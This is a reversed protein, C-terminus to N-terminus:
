DKRGVRGSSLSATELLVECFRHSAVSKLGNKEILARNHKALAVADLDLAHSFFDNNVDHVVIGNSRDTIWERNAPLDTVVPICGHYMAELLSIATADSTPLSAFVRARAYWQENDDRSLFGVFDVYNQLDLENTLQNLQATQSGRGAIVLRWQEDKQANIFQKFMQIIADIRYLPEHNRNSYIINEKPLKLESPNVGFNCIKIPLSCKTLAEARDALFQADATLRNDHRLNYRVMAKFLKSREPL